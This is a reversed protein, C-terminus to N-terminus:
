EWVESGSAPLLLNRGVLVFYNRGTYIVQNRHMLRIEFLSGFLEFHDQWSILYLDEM